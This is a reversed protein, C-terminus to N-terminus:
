LLLSTRKQHLGFCLSSSLREITTWLQKLFQFKTCDVILQLLNDEVNFLDDVLLANIKDNLLNRLLMIFKRRVGELSNCKILFHMLDESQKFCLPCLSSSRNGNFKARDAQLTYTGSIIKAKVCARKVSLLESGCSEWINHVVGAKFNDVNLMKMSVKTRAELILINKWYDNVANYVLKKWIHKEPVLDMVEIPSPLEYMETLKIIQIFWSESDRTKLALQRQAISREVSGHNDAINRFLSLMKKHIESEIPLQGTLVLVASNATRSPLHQIQKLLQIYYVSLKAIDTKTLRIIDLGYLLRPIVFCKIMHVSVKPNIGNLGYLGAGMLAYVTKRATQIRDPVVEKVGFKSHIDRKIGLHTANIPTNLKQDNMYWSHESKDGIKLVCSKQESITYRFKNAHDMQINIMTQLDYPDNAILTVDDAVTPAGCYISGIYSGIKNEEYIKLLSNIFVKYATPSWVGGQRVGQKEKFGRSYNGEWKVKTTLDEYWARFLLWNDGSINMKHMERFLGAHWVIDFAKKADTLGIYIPLRKEKAEIRLETVVLGAVTPSEGETFGKQLRSQQNKISSKNRSLHLKEITKGIASTITIRRYSNPDEKPKGGNKFLPCGIGIKLNNPVAVTKFILNILKTLINIVTQGGYKLHEITFKDVDPAKGNKFSLICKNLEYETVEQIPERTSLFIDTLIEIDNNVLNFFKSDFRDQVSPSALDEFYEAWAGLISASNNYLRNNVKLISTTSPRSNRQKNVLAFFQKDNNENLEMIKTYTNERKEAALRRQASRLKKKQVKMRIYNISSKNDKNGENKWKWYHFKGEKVIETMEPTWDRKRKFLKKRKPCLSEATTVIIDSFKTLINEINESTEVVAVDNFETLREQLLNEYKQKDIKDWKIRLPRPDSTSIDMRDICCNISIMIPDHTSLNQFERNFSLYKKVLASTEVFYDIQSEDRNNFHFFTSQKKCTSPISLGNSKLFEDFVIDRPIKRENRHLSANMDGGIIIDSTPLYKEIIESLEDLVSKFDEITINGGRTPMYVCILVLPQKINLRIAIVRNCGDPLLEVLNQLTKNVCIAVGAHGRRRETPDSTKDDDFCKVLCLFDTLFEQLAQKERNHLWHEQLMIIDARKELMSLYM